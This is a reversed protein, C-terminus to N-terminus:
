RPVEVSTPGDLRQTSYGLADGRTAVLARFIQHDLLITRSQELSRAVVEAIFADRAPAITHPQMVARLSTKSLSPARAHSRALLQGMFTALEVLDDQRWTGEEVKEQIRECSLGRQYKTRWRVRWSASSSGQDAWGLWPDLDPSPQLARQALVVREAATRHRPLPREPLRTALASPLDLTEKFELLLDDELDPSPGEVLVYYRRVAYSSVGAGLRRSVGKIFFFAEDGGEVPHLLTPRYRELAAELEVLEEKSPAVLTDEHLNAVASIPERQGFFMAREDGLVPAYELLEEQIAGDREARRLLDLLTTLRAPDIVPPEASLADLYGSALHEILAERQADTWRTPSDHPEFCLLAGVALRWLDVHAPGFSAADFDNFAVQMQGDGSQYTGINEPHPDGVLLIHSSSASAFSTAHHHSLGPTLMEQWFVSASGRFYRYPHTAMKRMKARSLTPEREFLDRNDALLVDTLWAARETNALSPEVPSGFLSSPAEDGASPACAPSLLLAASLLM